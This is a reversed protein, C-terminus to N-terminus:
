DGKLIGEVRVGISVSEASLGDGIDELIQCILEMRKDDGQFACGLTAVAGKVTLIRQALGQEYATAYQEQRQKAHLRGVRDAM